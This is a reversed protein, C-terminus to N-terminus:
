SLDAATRQAFRNGHRIAVIGALCASNVTEAVDLRIGVDGDTMDKADAQIVVGEGKGFVSVTGEHYGSDQPDLQNHTGAGIWIGSDSQSGSVAEAFVKGEIYVDGDAILCGHSRAPDGGTNSTNSCYCFPIWLCFPIM